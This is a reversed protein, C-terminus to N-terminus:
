SEEKDICTIQGETSKTIEVDITATMALTM